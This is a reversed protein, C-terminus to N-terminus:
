SEDLSAEEGAASAGHATLTLSAHFFKRLAEADYVDQYLRPESVLSELLDARQSTQGKTAFFCAALSTNPLEKLRNAADITSMPAGTEGDSLVVVCASVPLGSETEDRFFQEVIRQAAELGVHIATGGTGKSMPDFSDTAPIDLIDRAPREDTVRDSFAVFALVFNAARGSAHLRSLLKRVAADVAAAKSRTPLQVESRADGAAPSGMSGSGDLVLVGLQRWTPPAVPGMIDVASSFTPNPDTM